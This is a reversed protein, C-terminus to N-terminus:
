TASQIPPSNPLSPICTCTHSHGKAAWRFIDCCQKNVTQVGICFVALLDSWDIRFSILGSYEDSPSISFSFSGTSQGGSTFRKISFVCISPFISPLLLLPHCLVLHKSPMLSETSMPKLLSQSITSSLSAWRAATWPSVSLSVHNPSQVVVLHFYSTQFSQMNYSELQVSFAFNHLCYFSWYDGYTLPSLRIFLPLM